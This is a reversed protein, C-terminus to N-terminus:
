SHFYFFLQTPYATYDEPRIERCILNFWVFMPQQDTYILCCTRYFLWCITVGDDYMYQIQGFHFCIGWCKHYGFVFLMIQM